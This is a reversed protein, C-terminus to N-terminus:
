EEESNDNIKHLITNTLQFQAEFINNFHHYLLADLMFSIILCAILIELM